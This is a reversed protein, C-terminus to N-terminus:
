KAGVEESTKDGDRAFLLGVAIVCLEIAHNWDAVTEATGDFQAAAATLLAAAALMVAVTTTKPSKACKAVQKLM